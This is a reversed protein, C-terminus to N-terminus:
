MENVRSAHLKLIEYVEDPRLNNQAAITKINQDAKAKINDGALTRLTTQLNLNYTQCIDALSRRGIGMPPHDPMARNADPYKAIPPMISLFIQKPSVNNLEAIELLSQRESEVKIGAKKLRTECQYLDLGLKVTFTKLTSLEAHGYPPEGYREAAAYKISESM